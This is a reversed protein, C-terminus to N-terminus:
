SNTFGGRLNGPIQVLKEQYEAPLTLQPIHQVRWALASSGEMVANMQDPLTLLKQACFAASGQDGIAIYREM